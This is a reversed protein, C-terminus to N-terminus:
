NRERPDILMLRWREEDLLKDLDLHPSVKGRSDVIAFRRGKSHTLLVQGAARDHKNSRMVKTDARKRMEEQMRVLREEVVDPNAKDYEAQLETKVEFLMEQATVEDCFNHVYYINAKNLRAQFKMMHRVEASSKKRINVNQLHSDRPEVFYRGERLDIRAEILNKKFPDSVYLVVTDLMEHQRFPMEVMTMLLIGDYLTEQKRIIHSSDRNFRSMEVAYEAEVQRIHRLDEPSLVEDVKQDLYERVDVHLNDKFKVPISYPSFPKLSHYVKLCDDVELDRLCQNLKDEYSRTRSNRNECLLMASENTASLEEELSRVQGAIEQREAVSFKKPGKM